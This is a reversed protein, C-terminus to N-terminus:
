YMDYGKGRVTLETIPSEDVEFELVIVWNFAIFKYYCKSFFAPFFLLFFFEFFPIYFVFCYIINTLLNMYKFFGHVCDNDIIKNKKFFDFYKMTYLVHNGFIFIICAKILAWKPINRGVDASEGWVRMIDILGKFKSWCGREHDHRVEDEVCPQLCEQCYINNCMVCRHNSPIIFLEYGWCHPCRVVKNGEQKQLSLWKKFLPLGTVDEKKFSTKFYKRSFLTTDEDEM